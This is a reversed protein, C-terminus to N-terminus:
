FQYQYSYNSNSPCLSWDLGTEMQLSYFEMIGIFCSFYMTKQFTVQNCKTQHANLGLHALLFQPFPSQPVMSSFSVLYSPLRNRLLLYPYDLTIPDELLCCAKLIANLDILLSDHFFTVTRHTGLTCLLLHFRTKLPMM